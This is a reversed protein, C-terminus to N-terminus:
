QSRLTNDLRDDNGNAFDRKAAGNSNSRKALPRIATNIAFGSGQAACSDGSPAAGAASSAAGSGIALGRSNNSM